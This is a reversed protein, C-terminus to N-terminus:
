LWVALNVGIGIAVIIALMILAIVDSKNFEHNEDVVFFYNKIKKMM